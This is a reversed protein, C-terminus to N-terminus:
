RRIIQRLNRKYKDKDKNFRLIYSPHEVKFVIDVISDSIFYKKMVDYAFNGLCVIKSPEYKIFDYALEMVGELIIKQSPKSIPYHYINTLYLNDIDKIIKNLFSGSRGMDDWDYFTTQQKIYRGPCQGIIFTPELSINIERPRTKQMTM